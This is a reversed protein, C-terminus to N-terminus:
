KDSAAVSSILLPWAFFKLLQGSFVEESVAESEDTALVAVITNGEVLPAVVVEVPILLELVLVGLWSETLTPVSAPPKMPPTMTMNSIAPAINKKHQLLNFLLNITPACSLVLWYVMEVLGDTAWRCPATSPNDEYILPLKRKKKYIKRVARRIIGM